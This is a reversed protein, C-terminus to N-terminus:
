LLRELKKWAAALAEDKMLADMIMAAVDHRHILHCSDCVWNGM